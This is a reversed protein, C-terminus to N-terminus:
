LGARGMGGGRWPVFPGVKKVLRRLLLFACAALAVGTLNVALTRDWIRRLADAALRDIAHPEYIGANNVVIDLRGLATAAGDALDFASRPEALDAAIAVHGEGDLSGVTEAAAAADARYHVAVTAGRAALLTAIARGIGRGAGTVLAARGTLDVAAAPM